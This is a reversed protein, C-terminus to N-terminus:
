HFGRLIEFNELVGAVLYFGRGAIIYSIIWSINSIIGGINSIIGINYHSIKGSINSNIVGM